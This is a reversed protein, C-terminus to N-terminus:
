GMRALGREVDNAEGEIRADIYCRAATWVAAPGDAAVPHAGSAGTFFDRWLFHWGLPGCCQVAVYYGRYRDFPRYDKSM